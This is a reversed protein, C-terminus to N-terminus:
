EIPRSSCSIRHMPMWRDNGKLVTANSSCCNTIAISGNWKPWLRQLNRPFTWLLSSVVLSSHSISLDFRKNLQTVVVIYVDFVNCRYHKALSNKGNEGSIGCGFRFSHFIFPLRYHSFSKQHDVEALVSLSHLAFLVMRLANLSVNDRNLLIRSLLGM